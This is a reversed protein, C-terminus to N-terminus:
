VAVGEIDIVTGTSYTELFKPLKASVAFQTSVSTEKLSSTFANMLSLLNRERFEDYKPEFYHEHITSILSRPCGQLKEQICADYIILKADNDQLTVARYGDLQKRIGQFSQSIRRVAGAVLDILVLGSTHKRQLVKFDGSLAMNSCIFCHTGAVGQLSMSKDNAHRLAVAFRYDGTEGAVQLLTFLRMNDLSIEHRESLVPYGLGDLADAFSTIVEAHALPKHTATREPTPILALEERTVFRTNGKKM